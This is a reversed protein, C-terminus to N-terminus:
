FIFSTLVFRQLLANTGSCAKIGTLHVKVETNDVDPVKITDGAIAAVVRGTIHAHALSCFLLLMVIAKMM